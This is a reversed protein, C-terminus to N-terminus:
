GLSEGSLPKLHRKDLKTIAYEDTQGRLFCLTTGWNEGVRIRLKEDCCRCM